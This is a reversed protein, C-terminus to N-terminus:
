LYLTVRFGAYFGAYTSGDYSRNGASNGNAYNWYYGGRRTCPGGTASCVETTWEWVNGGMDYINNVATTQGTPVLVYSDNAKTQTKGELDTYSFETDLYNGQTSNQPYDSDTKAVFSLATDWAYSSCLKSTVNDEAKRYLSESETKARDRTIYNWVQKGSQIVLKMNEGSYGTFNTDTNSSTDTNVTTYGEIGAEYRGIYYGKYKTISILEDEPMEETYNSEIDEGKWATRKYESPNEVPIWVFENGDTDNKIVFGTDKSTGYVHSFGKPVPVGEVMDYNTEAQYGGVNETTITNMENILEKIGALEKEQANQYENRAQYSRRVIGNPDLALNITIGALILLVIITIVLAILTVGKEQKRKLM